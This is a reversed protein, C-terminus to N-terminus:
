CGVNDKEYKVQYIRNKITDAFFFVGEAVAVSGIHALKCKLHSHEMENKWIARDLLVCMEQERRNYFFLKRQECIFLDGEEDAAVAIPVFSFSTSQDGFINKEHSSLQYEILQNKGTNTIYLRRGDCYLGYPKDVTVDLIRWKKNKNLSIITNDLFNSVYLNEEIDVAIAGPLQFGGKIPEWYTNRYLYICNHGADALYIDGSKSCCIALPKDLSKGDITEVSFSGKERTMMDMWVVRHNYMDCVIIQNNIKNLCIGSPFNLEGDNWELEEIRKIKVRQKPM